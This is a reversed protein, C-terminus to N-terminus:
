ALLCGPIAHARPYTRLSAELSYMVLWLSRVLKLCLIPPNPGKQLGSGQM